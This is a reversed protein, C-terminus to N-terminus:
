SSKRIRLSFLQVGLVRQDDSGFDSPRASDPTDFTVTSESRALIKPEFAFIFTARSKCFLSGIRLGNLYVFVNQGDLAAEHKFVDLDVILEAGGVRLRPDIEFAFSIEAWRGTSWIWGGEPPWFNRLAADPEFGERFTLANEFNLM